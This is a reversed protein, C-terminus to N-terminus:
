DCLLNCNVCDCRPNGVSCTSSVSCGGSTCSCTVTGLRKGDSDELWHTTLSHDIDSKRLTPMEWQQVCVFLNDSVKLRNVEGIKNPAELSDCCGKGISDTSEEIVALRSEIAALRSMISNMQTETM